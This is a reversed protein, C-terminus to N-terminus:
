FALVCVRVFSQRNRAHAAFFSRRCRLRQVSSCVAANINLSRHERSEIVDRSATVERPLLNESFVVFCNGGMFRAFM